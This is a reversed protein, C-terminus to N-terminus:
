STTAPSSPPPPPKAATHALAKPPLPPPPKPRPPQAGTPPRYLPKSVPGGSLAGPKDTAVDKAVEPVFTKNEWESLAQDWDVDELGDPLKKDDTM